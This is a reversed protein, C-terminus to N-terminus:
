VRKSNTERVYSSSVKRVSKFTLANHNSLLSIDLNIKKCSIVETKPNVLVFVLIGSAASPLHIIQQFSYFSILDVFNHTYSNKASYNHWNIEPLSFDCYVNSSYFSKSLTFIKKLCCIFIKLQYLMYVSFHYIRPPMLVCLYSIGFKFSLSCALM